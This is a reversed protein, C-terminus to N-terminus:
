VINEEICVKECQDAQIAGCNDASEIVGSLSHVAICFDSSDDTHGIMAIQISIFIFWTIIKKLNCNVLM